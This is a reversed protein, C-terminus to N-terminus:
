AHVNRRPHHRLLMRRQSTEGIETYIQTTTLSRHGLLHQIYRIDAGDEHLLTAVSHRFMHPTIHLYLGAEKTHRRLMTRVSHESLRGGFRNSFFWKSSQHRTQFRYEQLTAVTQPHCLQVMRERAGKGIVRIRGRGLDVDDRRLSCLESVRVGTAFLTELVAADRLLTERQTTGEPTAAAAAYVHRFLQTIQDLPVTRPLRRPERIRVEMKRFPSVPIADERELFHFLSKMTAIKRILSKPALFTHLHHIYGRLEAKGINTVAEVDCVRTLFESLQRLDTAYAKLTKTSLNKEHRCHLLFHSIAAALTM